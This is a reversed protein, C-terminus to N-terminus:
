PTVEAIYERMWRRRDEPSHEGAHWSEPTIIEGTETDEFYYTCGPELAAPNHPADRCGKPKNDHIRCKGREPGDKILDPCDEKAGQEVSPCCIWGCQSCKGKKLLVM